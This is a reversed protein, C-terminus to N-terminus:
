PPEHPPALPVKTSVTVGGAGAPLDEVLVVAVLEEAGDVVSALLLVVTVTDEDVVVTVSTPPAHALGTTTGAPPPVNLPVVAPALVIAPQTAAAPFAGSTANWHVGATDPVAVIWVQPAPV